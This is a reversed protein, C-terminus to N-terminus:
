HGGRVDLLNISLSFVRILIVFDGTMRMTSLASKCRGYYAFFIVLDNFFRCKKLLIYFM